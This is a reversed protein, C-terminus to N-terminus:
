GERGGEGEGGGEDKKGRRRATARPNNGHFAHPFDLPSESEKRSATAEGGGRGRGRRGQRREDSLGRQERSQFPFRRRPIDLHV